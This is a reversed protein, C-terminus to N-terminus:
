LLGASQAADLVTRTLERFQGGIDSSPSAAFTSTWVMRGNRADSVRGTASFGTSGWGGIPASLGIGAGGGSGFNFGGIGISMGSGMSTTAPTMTLIFVTKAGAAHASAALQGEWERPNMATTDVPAAVANVGRGELARRLDDQCQARVSIDFTDCAVLVKGDRLIGSSSGLAPDIWEGWRQPPATTCGALVLAALAM